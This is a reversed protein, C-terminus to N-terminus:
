PGRRRDGERSLVRRCNEEGRRSSSFTGGGGGGAVMGRTGHPELAFWADELAMEATVRVGPDLEMMRYMLHIAAGNSDSCGPVVESAPAPDRPEFDIKGYDPLNMADPWRTESPTGFARMTRVLQDIDSEGRM